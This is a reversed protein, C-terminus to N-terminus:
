DTLKFSPWVESVEPIREACFRYVPAYHQAIERRLTESIVQDSPRANEKATIRQYDPPLGVFSSLRDMGTKTFLTEFLAFYLENYDFVAELNAITKDYRTRVETEPRAFREKLLEEQSMNSIQQKEQIMRIQSCCREVPDRMIFVVKVPIGRASFGEKIRVFAEKPLAAYAPTIDAAVRCGPKSLVQAFHDFYIEIDRIMRWRVVNKSAYGKKRASRWSKWFELPSPKDAPRKEIGSVFLNDWIHYEYIPTFGAPDNMIYRNLWTTGSKQAGVGLLFTKQAENAPVHQCCSPVPM